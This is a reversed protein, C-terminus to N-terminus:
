LIVTVDDYAFYAPTNLGYSGSDSGALNFKVANVRGLGSLDVLTWETVVKKGQAIPYEVRSIEKGAGDYGIAILTFYSSDTAPMSFGNGDLYVGYMYTTACIYMSSIFHSSGDKFSFGSMKNAFSDAYGNHVCFNSSGNAGSSNYVSLQHLYDAESLNLSTYNSVAEGGFWYEGETEAFLGTNNEDYWGWPDGSYLIPGGYQATDICSSWYGAGATGRYDADEFTLVRVEGTDFTYAFMRMYGDPNVAVLRVICERADIDFQAPASVKLTTGSVSAKWGDASLSFIDASDAGNLTLTYTATTGAAIHMDADTALSLSFDDVRPISIVTGDALTMVVESDTVTVSRFFSDGEAGEARIPRGEADTIVVPGDGTDVTWYGEADVGIIPTVGPDGKVGDAGTTTVPMRQGDDDLLWSTDGDVTITWYYIDGEKAVGIVPASDGDVGDSGNTLTLHDGNSLTLLYGTTTTTVDTIVAGGQLAAIATKMAAIDSNLATLKQEITTVREDLNDVANWLDDDNYCGTLCLMLMGVLYLLKKNM